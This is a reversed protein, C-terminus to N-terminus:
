VMHNKRLRRIANRRVISIAAETMGFCQAIEKLQMQELYSLQLVLRARRPLFSLLQRTFEHSELQDSRTTIPAQSSLPHLTSLMHPSRTVGRPMWNRERLGDLIAGRIRRIAYARFPVGLSPDFQRLAKLLGLNADSLLDEPHVCAPLRRQMIRLTESVLELGINLKDSRGM